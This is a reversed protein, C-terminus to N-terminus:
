QSSNPRQPPPAEGERTQRVFGIDQKLIALYQALRLQQETLKSIVLSNHLGVGLFALVALFFLAAPPYAIGLYGALISVLKPSLSTVLLALGTLLWLLAYQERLRRRRIQLVVAALFVISITLAVLHVRPLM